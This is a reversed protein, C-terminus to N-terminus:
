KVSEIKLGNLELIVKGEINKFPILGVERSDRSVGRNDGMVLYYGDPIVDVVTHNQMNGYEIDRLRYSSTEGNELPFEVGPQRKHNAKTADDFYYEDIVEGNITLIGNRWSVSDGPVGIVRKIYHKPYDAVNMKTPDLINDEETIYAVVVDFRDIKSLYSVLVRSDDNVTPYMSDGSVEAVVFIFLFCFFAVVCCSSIMSLWDLFIYIANQVSYKIGNLKQSFKKSFYSIFFLVLGIISVIMSVIMIIQIIDNIVDNQIGNRRSNISYIFLFGYVLSSILITYFRRKNLKTVKSANRLVSNTNCYTDLYSRKKLYM